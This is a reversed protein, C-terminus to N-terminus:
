PRSAQPGRMRRELDLAILWSAIEETERISGANLMAEMKESTMSFQQEFGRIRARVITLEGNPAGRAGAALERVAEEKEADTFHKFDAFRICRRM